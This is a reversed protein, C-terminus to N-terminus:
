LVDPLVEVSGGSMCANFRVPCTVGSVEWEAEIAFALALPDCDRPLARVRVNNLRPEYAQIFREISLRSQSLSEHLSLRMDNFDPLGYDPLTQVSGVRTGLMKELHAAVAPLISASAPPEGELRQFLSRYDSM